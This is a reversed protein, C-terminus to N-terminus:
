LTTELGPWADPGSLGFRPHRKSHPFLRAWIHRRALPDQWATAQKVECLHFPPTGGFLQAGVRIMLQHVREVDNAM